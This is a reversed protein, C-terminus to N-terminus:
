ALPAGPLKGFFSLLATREPNSAAAATAAWRPHAGALAVGRLVRQAPRELLTHTSVRDPIRVRLCFRGDPIWRPDTQPGYRIDGLDEVVFVAAPRASPRSTFRPEQLAEFTAPARRHGPAPGVHARARAFVRRGESAAASAERRLGAAGVPRADM